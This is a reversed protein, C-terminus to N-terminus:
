ILINLGFKYFFLDYQMFKRCLTDVISIYLFTHFHFNCILIYIISNEYFINNSGEQSRSGARQRLKSGEQSEKQIKQGTECRGFEFGGFGAFFFVFQDFSYPKAVQYLLKVQLAWLVGKKGRTLTESRINQSKKVMSLCYGGGVEAIQGM